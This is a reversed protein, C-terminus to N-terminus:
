AKPIWHWTRPTAAEHEKVQAFPVSTVWLEDNGDLFVKGNVMGSTHDWIRVIMMPLKDGARASNGEFVETETRRKYVKEVDLESLVYHVIRGETLGEM